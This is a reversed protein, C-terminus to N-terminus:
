KTEKTKDVEAALADTQQKLQKALQDIHAQVQSSNDQPTALALAIAAMGKAQADTRRNYAGIAANILYYLSGRSDIEHETKM